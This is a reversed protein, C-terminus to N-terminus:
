GFPCHRVRRYGAHGPLHPGDAAPYDFATRLPRYFSPILEHREDQKEEQEGDQQEPESERHV